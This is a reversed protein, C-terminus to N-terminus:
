EDSHTSEAKIILCKSYNQKHLSDRFLRSLSWFLVEADKWHGKRVKRPGKASPKSTSSHNADRHFIVYGVKGKEADTWLSWGREMM